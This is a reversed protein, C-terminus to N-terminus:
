DPCIQMESLAWIMLGQAWRLSKLRMPGMPYRRYMFSGDADQMRTLTYNLLRNRAERCAARLSEALHPDKQALHLTILGQGCSYIDTPWPRGVAFHPRGDEAFLKLYVPLGKAFAQAAGEHFTVWAIEQMATLTMGTHYNDIISGSGSKVGALYNWSGDENQANVAFTAIELGLESFDDRGVAQGARILLSAVDANSNVCQSKDLPTYSVAVGGTELRTQHLGSVLWECAKAVASLYRPEDLVKAGKLLANGVTMTTHGIPTNPPVTGVGSQWPFPLGWGLGVETPAPHELLWDLYARAEKERGLNLYGTALQAIGGAMITQPVGLVKRMGRPSVFSAAYIGRIAVKGLTGKRHLNMVATAGKLDNPDFTRTGVKEVFQLARDLASDLKTM